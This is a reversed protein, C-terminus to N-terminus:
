ETLYEESVIKGTNADIRIDAYVAWEKQSAPHGPLDDKSKLAVFAMYEDKCTFGYATVANKRNENLYQQGFISKIRRTGINALEYAQM